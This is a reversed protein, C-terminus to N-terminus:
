VKSVHQIVDDVYWEISPVTARDGESIGHGLHDHSFCIFGYEKSCLKECFDDYWQSHEGYGHCIFVLGQLNMLITGTIINKSGM